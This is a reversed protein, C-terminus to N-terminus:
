KQGIFAGIAFDSAYTHINFPLSWDPGKLILAQTLAGKLKFFAEECTPTWEFEVNQTLLSYLPGAM